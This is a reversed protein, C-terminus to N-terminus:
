QPSQKEQIEDTMITSDSEVEFAFSRPKTMRSAPAMVDDIPVLAQAEQLM